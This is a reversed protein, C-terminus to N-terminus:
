YCVDSQYINTFFILERKNEEDKYKICRTWQTPRVDNNQQGRAGIYAGISEINHLRQFDNYGRNFIYLSNEEYPIEYLANM